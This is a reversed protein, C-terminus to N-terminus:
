YPLDIDVLLLLPYFLLYFYLKLLHTLDSFVSMMTPLFLEVKVCYNFNGTLKTYPDASVLMRQGM